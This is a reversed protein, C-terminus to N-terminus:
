AALGVGGFGLLGLGIVLSLAALVAPWHAQLWGNCHALVPTARDGLVEVTVLIGILPLVFAVNYVVLVAVRVPLSFGSGTILAIAAFYPLATPLEIAAIGAGLALSSGGGRGRETPLEREALTRRRAWLFAGAVLLVAGAVLELIAKTRASPDPILGLVLEGPGLMILLGGLLTAGFVGFIFGALRRGPRESTALYLAPAVTSPNLSDGLAISVVLVLLRLM